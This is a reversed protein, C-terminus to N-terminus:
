LLIYAKEQLGFAQPRAERLTIRSAFDQCVTVEGRFHFNWAPEWTPFSAFPEHLKKTLGEVIEVMAPLWERGQRLGTTLDFLRDPLSM